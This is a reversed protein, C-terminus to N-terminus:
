PKLPNFEIYSADIYEYIAVNKLMLWEPIILTTMNETSAKLHIQSLPFWFKLPNNANGVIICQAKETKIELCKTFFDFTVFKPKNKKIAEM